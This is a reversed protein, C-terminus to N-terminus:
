TCSKDERPLIMHSDNTTALPANGQTLSHGRANCPFSARCAWSNESRPASSRSVPRVDRVVSQGGNNRSLKELFKIGAGDGQDGCFIGNIVGPIKTAWAFCAEEDAPEGDSFIVVNAAMRRAAWELALHLNTGGSPHQPIEEISTIEQVETSFLVLTRKPMNPRYSAVMKRLEAIGVGLMSGSVDLLWVDCVTEEVPIDDLKGFFQTKDQMSHTNSM